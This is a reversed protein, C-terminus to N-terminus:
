KDWYISDQRERWLFYGAVRLILSLLLLLM